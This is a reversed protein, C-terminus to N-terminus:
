ESTSDQITVRKIRKKICYLSHTPTLLGELFLSVRGRFNSFVSFYGFRHGFMYHKAMGSKLTAHIRTPCLVESACM